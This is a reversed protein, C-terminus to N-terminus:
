EEGADRSRKPKRHKKKMSAYEIDGRVCVDPDAEFRLSRSRGRYPISRLLLKMTEIRALHKDDSRIVWWPNKATHTVRLLEAKKETFEKWLDQAQLDVESLKWARLPDNLRREFRRAQEAKSVSFYFYILGTTGDSILSEEFSGM